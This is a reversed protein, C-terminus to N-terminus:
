ASLKQPRSSLRGWSAVALQTLPYVLLKQWWRACSGRATQSRSMKLMVNRANKASINWRPSSPTLQQLWVKSSSSKRRWNKTRLSFSNCNCRSERDRLNKRWASLNVKRKGKGWTNASLSFNSCNCRSERDRRNKKRWASVNMRWNKCKCKFNMRNWESSIASLSFRSCRCHMSRDRLNKKRWASLNVKRKGKEWTNASLSFNNCSRRSQRDRLNKKSWASVNRHWNNCKFTFNM